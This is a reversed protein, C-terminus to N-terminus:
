WDLTDEVADLKVKVCTKSKFKTYASPVFKEFKHNHKADSVKICGWMVLGTLYICVTLIFQATKLYTWDQYVIAEYVNWISYGNLYIIVGFLGLLVFGAALTQFVGKLVARIYSCIDTETDHYKSDNLGISFLWYHWSKKNFKLEKM